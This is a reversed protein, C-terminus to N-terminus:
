KVLNYADLVDQIGQKDTSSVTMDYKYDKGQFRIITKESSAIRQLVDIYKDAPNADVSETVGGVFTQQNVDFYNFPITQVKEGDINIVVDTFFVWDSGTYDFKWLLAYRGDKTFIYPLAFCRENAYQPYCSPMYYAANEVEDEKKNLKAFAADIEAQKEEETQSDAESAVSSVVVSSSEDEPDVWDDPAVPKHVLAAVFIIAVFFLVVMLCGHRKKKPKEPKLLKGKQNSEEQAIQAGCEPCFKVNDVESGCNPCKM